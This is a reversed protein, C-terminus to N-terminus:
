WDFPAFENQAPKRYEWSGDLRRRRMVEGGKHTFGNLLTVREGPHLEHLQWLGISRDYIGMSILVRKFAAILSM